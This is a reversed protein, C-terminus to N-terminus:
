PSHCPSSRYRSSWWCIVIVVAPLSVAGPMERGMLEVLFLLIQEARGKSQRGSLMWRRRPSSPARSPRASSLSWSRWRWRWSCSVFPTLQEQLVPWPVCLCCLSSSIMFIQVPWVEWSVSTFCLKVDTNFTLVESLGGERQLERKGKGVNEGCSILCLFNFTVLLAEAERESM